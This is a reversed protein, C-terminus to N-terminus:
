LLLLLLTWEGLLQVIIIILVRESYYQRQHHNISNRKARWSNTVLWKRNLERRSYFSIEFVSSIWSKFIFDIMELYVFVDYPCYARLMGSVSFTDASKSFQWFRCVFYAIFFCGSQCLQSLIKLVFVYCARSYMYLKVLLVLRFVIAFPLVLSRRNISTFASYVWRQTTQM